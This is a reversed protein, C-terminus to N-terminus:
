SNNGAVSYGLLLFSMYTKGNENKDGM